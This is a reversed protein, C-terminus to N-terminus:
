PEQERIPWKGDFAFSGLERYNDKGRLLQLYTVEVAVGAMCDMDKVALLATRPTGGLQTDLRVHTTHRPTKM